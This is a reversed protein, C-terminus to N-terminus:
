AKHLFLNCIFDVDSNGVNHYTLKIKLGVELRAPYVTLMERDDSVYWGDVFKDVSIDGVGEIPVTIDVDVRDGFNANHARYVGGTILREDTVLFEQSTSDNALATFKFAGKFRARKGDSNQFASMKIPFKLRNEVHGTNFFKEKVDRLESESFKVYGRFKKDKGATTPIIVYNSEVENGSTDLKYLPTPVIKKVELDQEHDSVLNSREIIVYKM